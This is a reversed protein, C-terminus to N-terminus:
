GISEVMGVSKLNSWVSDPDLQFGIGPLMVYNHIDHLGHGTEETKYTSHQLEQFGTRIGSKFLQEVSEYLNGQNKKLSIVYDANEQTILKVIDQSM